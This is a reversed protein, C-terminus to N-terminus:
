SKTFDLKPLGLATERIAGGANAVLPEGQGAFNTLVRRDINDVEDRIVLPDRNTTIPTTALEAINKLQDLDMAGLQADTFKNRENAKIKGIMETCATNYTNIGNVLMGRMERPATDIYEQLTPVKPAVTTNVIPEEKKAPEEKVPAVDPKGANTIHKQLRTESLGTLYEREDEEWHGNAILKDIETKKNMDCGKTVNNTLVEEYSTVRQVLTPSGLLTVVSDTVHYDQKYLKGDEYFVVYEPWVDEIWGYDDSYESRLLSSLSSSTASFSLDNGIFRNMSEKVAGTLLDKPVPDGDSNVRLLGAGDKISSAGVQDPLIALHDPRINTIVGDYAKGGFEGPTPVVESFLGTSVESITGSRINALIRTDVADCREIDLWSEARQKAASDGRKKKTSTNMILGVQSNTLIEPQCASVYVGGDKPHNVVIPKHNWVPDSLKLEKNTYLQPGESGDLVGEVTMITPVVLYERGAMKETRTKATDLNVTIKHFQEM